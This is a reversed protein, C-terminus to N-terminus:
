MWKGRNMWGQSKRSKDLRNQQRGLAYDEDKKSSSEKESGEEIDEHRQVRNGV